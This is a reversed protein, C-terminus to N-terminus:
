QVVDSLDVFQGALPLKIPPLRLKEGSVLLAALALALLIQSIAISFLIAVASGFALWRAARLLNSEPPNM